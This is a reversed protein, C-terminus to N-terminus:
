VGELESGVQLENAVTKRKQFENVVSKVIERCSGCGTSARTKDIVLQMPEVNGCGHFKDAVSEIESKAVRNCECVISDGSLFETNLKAVIPDSFLIETADIALNFGSAVATIRRVSDRDGVIVAETIQGDNVTIRKFTNKAENKLILTKDLEQESTASNGYIALEMGPASVRGVSPRPVWNNSMGLLSNAAYEGVEWRFTFDHKFNSSRVAPDLVIVSGNTRFLGSNHNVFCKCDSGTQLLDLFSRDGHSVLIVMDGRFKEGAETRLSILTADGNAQNSQDLQIELVRSGNTVEIGILNLRRVVVSSSIPDLLPQLLFEGNDVIQVSLGRAALSLSVGLVSLSDGIVIAKKGKQLKPGLRELDEFNSCGDVLETFNCSNDTSQCFSYGDVILHDFRIARGDSLILESRNDDITEVRCDLILDIGREQYWQVSHFNLDCLDIKGTLFEQVFAQNIPLGDETVLTIKLDPDGFNSLKNLCGMAAMTSGIIVVSRKM